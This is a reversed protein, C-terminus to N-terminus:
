GRLEVHQEAATSIEEPTYVVTRDRQEDVRHLRVGECLDPENSSLWSLSRVCDLSHTTAFLQVDLRKATMIIVRWMDSMISHHLGTDIEDIMVFGHPSRSVALSTTLLHRIGDGLSGLPIRSDLNRLKVYIGWRSGPYRYYSRSSLFAIREITPELIRLSEIVKAEEETLAISDWFEQLEINDITESSIFSVPRGESNPKSSFRRVVDISIAGSFAMPYTVSEKNRSHRISLSLRPELVNVDSFLARDDDITSESPRVECMLEVNASSEIGRIRFQAGVECDHGYFLHSVDIYRHTRDQERQEYIEGRRMVCGLVAATRDGSLLMEAAELITTKGSNNRGVFLNVQSLDQVHLEKFTRFNKIELASLM